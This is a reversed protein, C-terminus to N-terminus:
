ELRVIIIQTSKERLGKLASDTGLIAALASVIGVLSGISLITREYVIANLLLLVFFYFVRIASQDVGKAVRITSQDVSKANHATKATTTTLLM